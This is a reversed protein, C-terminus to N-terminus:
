RGRLALVTMDDDQRGGAFAKAESVIVDPVQPLPLADCVRLLDV